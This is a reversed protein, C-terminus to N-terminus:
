RRRSIVTPMFGRTVPANSPRRQRKKPRIIAPIGLFRSYKRKPKKNAKARVRVISRRGKTRIINLAGRDTTSYNEEFKVDANISEVQNIADRTEVARGFAAVVAVVTAGPKMHNAYKTAATGYVGIGRLQAATEQASASASQTLTKIQRNAYGASKLKAVAEAARAETAFLRTITTPM